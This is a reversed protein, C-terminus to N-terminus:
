RMLQLSIDLILVRCSVGVSVKGKSYLSLKTSITEPADVAFFSEPDLGPLFCGGLAHFGIIAEYGIVQPADVAFSYGPDIGPLFFGGLAHFGVIAEYVHVRPADIAFSSGPDIGPLFRGGLAQFGVIPESRGSGVIGRSACVAFISEYAISPLFTGRSRPIRCPKTALSGLRM